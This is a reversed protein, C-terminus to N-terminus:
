LTLVTLIIGPERDVTHLRVGRVGWEDNLSEAVAVLGFKAAHYAADGSTESGAIIAIVGKGARGMLRGFAHAALFPATLNAAIVVEWEDQSLEDAPANSPLDHAAILADCRGFRDWVEDAFATVAVGDTSDLVTTSQERGIAWVENAISAVAFENEPAATGFAIDAGAEACAVAIARDSESGTCVLAVVKGALEGSM